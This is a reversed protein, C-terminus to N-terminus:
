WPDSTIHFVIGFSGECIVFCLVELVLNMCFSQWEIVAKHCRPDQDENGTQLALQPFAILCTIQISEMLLYIVGGLRM